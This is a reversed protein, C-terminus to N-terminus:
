SFMKVIIKYYVACTPIERLYADIFAVALALARLEHCWHKAM